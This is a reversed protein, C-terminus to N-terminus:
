WGCAACVNVRCTALFVLLETIGRSAFVGRDVPSPRVCIVSSNPTFVNATPILVDPRSYHKHSNWIHISGDTAGGIM